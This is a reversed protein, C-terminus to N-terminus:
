TPCSGERSLREAEIRQIQQAIWFVEIPIVANGLAAIRAAMRRGDLRSSVGHVVRVVYPEPPWVLACSHEGIPEETRAWGTPGWQWPRRSEAADATASRNRPKGADASRGSGNTRRAPDIDADACAREQSQGASESVFGNRGEPDPDAFLPPDEWFPWGRRWSELRLVSADVHAVLFVRSREHSAGFDSARLRIPLSAYGLEWLARRLLPVWRRWSHHVNEILVGRPRLEGVLRVLERWLGSQPGDPGMRKGASSLDQCPFGGVLWDVRPLEECRPIESREAL